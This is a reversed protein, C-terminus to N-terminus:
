ELVEEIDKELLGSLIQMAELTENAEYDYGEGKLIEHNDQLVSHIIQAELATILKVM